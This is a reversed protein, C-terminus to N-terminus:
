EALSDVWMQDLSEASQDDKLAVWRAVKREAWQCAKWAVRLGAWKQARSAAWHFAKWEASQDDKRDARQFDREAVWHCEKSAALQYVM